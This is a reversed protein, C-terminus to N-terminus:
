RGAANVRRRARELAAALPTVNRADAEDLLDAVTDAIADTRREADRADYGGAEQALNIVGGANVVFDPVYLVGAAALEDAVSDDGLQNNAAGVIARCRLSGVVASDLVGGLACPALLDCSQTLIEEVGVVRCTEAGYRDALAAVAEQRVDAVSVRAGSAILSEVLLSGVKGAGMVAVQCGELSGGSTRRVVAAQAGHVGRATAVSPDGSAASTGTVHSCVTAIVDMDAPTTGVDEATVYRGELACVAQGYARLLELRKDVAPDGIIVAKGGGFDLGALSNKRTMAESLRLVDTVADDVLAFPHFRTGGLAPGLATSHVAIVSRLGVEDDSFFVVEEHTPVDLSESRLTM